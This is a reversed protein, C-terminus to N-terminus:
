SKGAKSTLLERFATIEDANLVRKPLISFVSPQTYLMFISKSERWAEIASWSIKSQGNQSAYSIETDTVSIQIPLHLAKIKRFQRRYPIGSWPWLTILSFLVLLIAMPAMQRAAESKQDILWSVGGVLGLVVLLGFGVLPVIGVKGYRKRLHSRQADAFDNENLQFNFTM